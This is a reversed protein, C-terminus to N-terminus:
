MNVRGAVYLCFCYQPDLVGFLRIATGRPRAARMVTGLSVSGVVEFRTGLSQSWTVCRHGLGRLEWFGEKQPIEMPVCSVSM